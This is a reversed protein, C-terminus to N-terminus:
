APTSAGPGDSPAIAIGLPDVFRGGDNSVDATWEDGNFYRLEFRGLPDAYWGPQVGSDNAVAPCAVPAM